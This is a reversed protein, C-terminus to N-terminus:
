SVDLEHEIDRGGYMVRIVAVIREKEDVTYFVVFRDVPMMRFNRTRWPEKEYRRYREPMQDLSFIAAELRSLQGKANDPAQLQGAIYAYISRLDADAQETIDVTYITM